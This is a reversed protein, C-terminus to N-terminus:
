FISKNVTIEKNNDCIRKCSPKKTSPEPNQKSKNPKDIPKHIIESYKNRNQDGFALHILLTKTPKMLAKIKPMVGNQFIRLNQFNNTPIMNNQIGAIKELLLDKVVLFYM